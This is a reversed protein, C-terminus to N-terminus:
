TKQPDNPDVLQNGVWRKGTPAEPEMGKPIVLGQPEAAAVEEETPPVNQLKVDIDPVSLAGRQVAGWFKTWSQKTPFKMSGLEYADSDVFGVIDIEVKAETKSLPIVKRNFIMSIM